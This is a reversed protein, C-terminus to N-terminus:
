AARRLKKVAIARLLQQASMQGSLCREIAMAILRIHNVNDELWRKIDAECNALIVQPLEPIGQENEHLMEQTLFACKRALEQAESLLKLGCAPKAEPFMDSIMGNIVGDLLLLQIENRLAERKILKETQTKEPLDTPSQDHPDVATKTLDTSRRAALEQVHRIISWTKPSDESQHWALLARAALRTSDMKLEISM